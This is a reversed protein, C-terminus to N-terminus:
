SLPWYLAQLVFLLVQISSGLMQTCLWAYHCADSTGAGPFCFCASGQPQSTLWDQCNTIETTCLSLRQGLILCLAISSSTQYGDRAGMSASADVCVCVCVCVHLYVHACVCVSVYVCVYVCLYVCVCM